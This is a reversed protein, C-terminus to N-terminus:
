RRGTFAVSQKAPISLTFGDRGPSPYFIQTDPRSPYSFGVSKFTVNGEVSIPTDGQKSLPDDLPDDSDLLKFIAAAAVLGRQRASFDSNAQGVGFAAFMVALLSIFFDQFSTKGSIMLEIGSYFLLAFTSFVACQTVGYVLGTYFGQKVKYEADPKLARAYKDSVVDQLNYAQLVFIDHFGRELITPASLGGDEAVARPRTCRAQLIGAGVILPMCGLAILGIQWSFSLSIAVGALLSATIQIRQGLQYGTVNAVAESDEELRTTLEGTSNSPLDFWGISQRMIKEFVRVRM